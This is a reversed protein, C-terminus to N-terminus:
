IVDEDRDGERLDCTCMSKSMTVLVINAIRIRNGPFNISLDLSFDTAGSQNLDGRGLNNSLLRMHNDKSTFKIYLLGLILWPFVIYLFDSAYKGCEYRSKDWRKRRKNVKKTNKKQVNMCKAFNQVNSEVM